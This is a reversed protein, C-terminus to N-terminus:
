RNIVIPTPSPDDEKGNKNAFEYREKSNRDVPSSEKKIKEEIKKGEVTEVVEYVSSDEYRFPTRLRKYTCNTV